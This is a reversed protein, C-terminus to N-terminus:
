NEKERRATRRPGWKMDIEVAHCIIQSSQRWGRMSVELSNM